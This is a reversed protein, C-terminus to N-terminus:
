NKQRYNKHIKIWILVGMSLIWGLTLYTYFIFIFSYPVDIVVVKLVPADIEYLVNTAYIEQGLGLFLILVIVTIWKKM